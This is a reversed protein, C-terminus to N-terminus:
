GWYESRIALRLLDSVGAWTSVMAVCREWMQADHGLWGPSEDCGRGCVVQGYWIPMEAGRRRVRRAETMRRRWGTMFTSSVQARFIIQALSLKHYRNRSECSVDKMWVDWHRRRREWRSMEMTWTSHCCWAVEVNGTVATAADLRWRQLAMLM